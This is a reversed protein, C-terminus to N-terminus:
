AHRLWRGQRAWRIITRGSLGLVAAAANLRTGGAMAEDILELIM